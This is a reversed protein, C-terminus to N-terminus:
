NWSITKKSFAIIGTIFIYFIFLLDFFLLGIIHVPLRYKQHILGWIILLSIERLIFAWFYLKIDSLLSVCYAGFCILSMMWFLAQSLHLTALYSKIKFSYFKGVSLHRQKQRFWATLSTKPKSYVFSDPNLCIKTNKSNAIKGIWLDDDGGTIHKIKKFFQKKHEFIAKRYALNRGVGMYPMKLKAFSLYQLATYFTEFQIFANLFTNHKFYPSVGLVIDTQPEFQNQMLTIWETTSPRCDADTLLIIENKALSIGRSLAYKKPNYGSPTQSIHTCKLYPIQQSQEELWQATGDESRDNVIIIEFDPYTQKQLLPLLEQLNSLENYACIVVSVSLQEIYSPNTGECVSVDGRNTGECVSVHSHRLLSGFVVVQIFVQVAVVGCFLIFFYESM